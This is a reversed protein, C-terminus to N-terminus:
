RCVEKDSDLKEGKVFPLYDLDRQMIHDYMWGGVLQRVDDATQDLSQYKAKGLLDVLMGRFKAHELKHAELDPYGHAALMYEEERFHERTYDCLAVLSKMVRVQDGSGGFTAALEFLTRHQADISQLGLELRASWVPLEEKKM